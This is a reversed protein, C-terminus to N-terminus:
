PPFPGSYNSPLWKCGAVANCLEKTTGGQCHSAPQPIGSFIRCSYTVPPQLLVPIVDGVDGRKVRVRATEKAEKEGAAPEGALIVGVMHRTHETIFPMPMMTVSTGMVKESAKRSYTLEFTRSTQDEGIKRVSTIRAPHVDAFLSGSCFLAFIIKKM